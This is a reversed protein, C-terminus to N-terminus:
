WSFCCLRVHARYLHLFSYNGLDFITLKRMVSDMENKVFYRELDEGDSVVFRASFDETKISFKTMRTANASLVLIFRNINALIAVCWQVRIRKIEWHRGFKRPSFWWLSLCTSWEVNSFMLRSVSLRHTIWRIPQKSQAYPCQSISIRQVDTRHM